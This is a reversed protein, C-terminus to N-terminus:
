CVTCYLMHNGLIVDFAQKRAAEAAGDTHINMGVEIREGCARVLRGNMEVICTDCSRIPGMLPSHYCIHPIEQQRLVADLLLEDAKAQVIRDNITITISTDVIPPMLPGMRDQIWDAAVSGDFVTRSQPTKRHSWLPITARNKRTTPCVSKQPIAGEQLH